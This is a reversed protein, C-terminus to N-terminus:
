EGVKIKRGCKPCYHMDNEEPTTYDETFVWTLGCESCEWANTEKDRTYTCTEESEQIITKIRDAEEIRGILTGYKEGSVYNSECIIKEYKEIDDELTQILKEKNM